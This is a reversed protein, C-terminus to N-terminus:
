GSKSSLACNNKKRIIKVAVRHMDPIRFALRVEASAGAGLVKSVTYKSTLEEPFTEETEENSLLLVFVKKNPGAFSIVANNELPWISNKGVKHGNVWTGSLLCIVVSFILLFLLLLYEGNTSLDTLFVGDEAKTIECQTQSITNFWKTDGLASASIIFDGVQRGIKFRETM